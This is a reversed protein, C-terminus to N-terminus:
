APPPGTAATIQGGARVIRPLTADRAYAVMVGNRDGHAPKGVICLFRRRGTRGKNVERAREFDDPLKPPPLLVVLEGFRRRLADINWISASHM